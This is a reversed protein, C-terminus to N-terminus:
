KLLGVKKLIYWGRTACDKSCYYRVAPLNKMKGRFVPSNCYLCKLGRVNLEFERLCPLCLDRFKHISRLFEYTIGCRSCKHPVPTIKLLRAREDYRRQYSEKKRKEMCVCCYRATIRRGIEMPKECTVCIKKHNKKATHRAFKGSFKPKVETESLISRRQVHSIIYRQLCRIVTIPMIKEQLYHHNGAKPLYMIVLISKM